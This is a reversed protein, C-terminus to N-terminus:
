LLVRLSARNVNGLWIKKDVVVGKKNIMKGHTLSIVDGVRIVVGTAFVDFSILRRMTNESVRRDLEAQADAQDYLPTIYLKEDFYRDDLENNHELKSYANKLLEAFAIDDANGNLPDFRSALSSDSEPLANLQYAVIIKKAPYIYEDYKVSDKYIDFPTIVYDINDSSLDIYVLELNQKSLDIRHYIGLPKLLDTLVDNVSRDSDVWVGAKATFHWDKLYFTTLELSLQEAIFEAIKIITDHQEIIDVRLERTPPIAPIAIAHGDDDHMLTHDIQVGSDRLVINQTHQTNILYELNLASKLLAGANFVHGLAKPITNENYQATAFLQQLAFSQDFFSLTILGKEPKLDDIVGVFVIRFDGYAWDKDGWRVSIPEGRWIDDLMWDLDGNNLLKLEGVSVNKDVSDVAVLPEATLASYPAPKDDVDIIFPANAVNLQTVNNGGIEYLVIREARPNELWQQYTDQHVNVNM